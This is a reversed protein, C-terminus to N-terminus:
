RNALFAVGISLSIIGICALMINKVEIGKIRLPDGIKRTSVERRSISKYGYKPEEGATEALKLCFINWSYADPTEGDKFSDPVFVSKGIRDHMWKSQSVLFSRDRSEVVVEHLNELGMGLFSMIGAYDISETFAYNHNVRDIGINRLASLGANLLSLADEKASTTNNM